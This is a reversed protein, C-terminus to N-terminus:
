LHNADSRVLQDPVLLVLPAPAADSGSRFLSDGAPGLEITQFSGAGGGGYGRGGGKGGGGYSGGATQVLRERLHGSALM